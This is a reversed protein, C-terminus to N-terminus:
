QVIETENKNDQRLARVIFEEFCSYLDATTPEDIAAAFYLARVELAADVIRLLRRQEPEFLNENSIIEHARHLCETPASECCGATLFDGWALHPTSSIHM